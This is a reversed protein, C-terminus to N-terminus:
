KEWKAKLQGCAANIDEGRPKRFTFNIGTQKLNKELASLEKESLPCYGSVFSQNYPIFNVKCAIGRLLGALKLVDRKNMNLESILVYEFTVPYKNREIFYKVGKIVESLPYKRNVPMIKSRIEDDASHLSISLKVGLKLDGFEKIQEALGCTSVCIRRRGLGLGQSATFIKIAKVTNSFNDLPEGVGMFVINTIKRSAVLDSVALYQNIIESVELNRKFGKQGSLCIKCGFRCGVQTSLCLTARTSEPIFVTEVACNDQLYFLFKETGDRSVERTAPKLNLFCFKEQLFSRSSKSIDSM